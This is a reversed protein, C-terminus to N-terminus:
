DFTKKLNIGGENKTNRQLYINTKMEYGLKKM